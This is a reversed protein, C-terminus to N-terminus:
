VAIRAITLFQVRSCKSPDFMITQMRSTKQNEKVVIVKCIQIPVLTNGAKNKATVLKKIKKQITALKKAHCHVKAIKQENKLPIFQWSMPM